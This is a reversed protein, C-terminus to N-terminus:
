VRDSVIDEKLLELGMCALRCVTSSRSEGSRASLTCLADDTGRELAIRSQLHSVEDM